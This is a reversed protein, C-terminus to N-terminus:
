LLIPAGIFCLDLLQSQLDFLQSNFDARLALLKFLLNGFGLSSLDLKVFCCLLKFAQMLLAM